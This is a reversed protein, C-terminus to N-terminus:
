RRTVTDKVRGVIRPPRRGPTQYSFIQQRTQLFCVAFIRLGEGIAFCLGKKLNLLLAYSTAPLKEGGLGRIWRIDGLGDDVNM